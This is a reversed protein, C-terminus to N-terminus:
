IIEGNSALKLSIFNRSIQSLKPLNNSFNCQKLKISTFGSILCLTATWVLWRIQSSLHPSDLNLAVGVILTHSIWRLWCLSPMTTCVQWKLYLSLMFLIVSTKAFRLMFTFGILLYLLFLSPGSKPLLICAWCTSSLSKGSWYWRGL